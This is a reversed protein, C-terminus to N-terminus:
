DEEEAQDARDDAGPRGLLGELDHPDDAVSPDAWHGAKRERDMVERVAQRADMMRHYEERRQSNTRRRTRGETEELRIDKGRAIQPTGDLMEAGAAITPDWDFAM